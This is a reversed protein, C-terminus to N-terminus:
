REGPSDEELAGEPEPPNGSRIIHEYLLAGAMGGLLPGAVYAPWDPFYGSVLMPVLSRTPNLSTATINATCLILGGVTLGVGLGVAPTEAREDTATAMVVLLLLATILAECLFVTLESIGKGPLTAGMAITHARAKDGFIARVSLSALIMGVFQAGLYAPVARWPFKRTIALGMTVSPNAHAGSVHGFAYVIVVVAFAWALAIPLLEVKPGQQLKYMVVAGTGIFLLLFAATAEGVLTPLTVRGSEVLSRPPRYAGGRYGSMSGHLGSGSITDSSGQAAQTAM